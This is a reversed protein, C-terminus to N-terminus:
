VCTLGMTNMKRRIFTNLKVIVFWKKIHIDLQTFLNM